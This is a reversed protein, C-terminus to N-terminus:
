QELTKGAVQKQQFFARSISNPDRTDCKAWPLQQGVKFGCPAIWYSTKHICAPLPDYTAWKLGFTVLDSLSNKPLGSKLTLMASLYIKGIGDNLTIELHIPRFPVFFTM